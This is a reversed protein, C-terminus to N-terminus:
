TDDIKRPLSLLYDADYPHDSLWNSLRKEDGLQVLYWYADVVSEPTSYQRPAPFALPRRKEEPTRWYAREWQRLLNEVYRSM